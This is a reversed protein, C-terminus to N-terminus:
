VDDGEKLYRLNMERSGSLQKAYSKNGVIPVSLFGKSGTITYVLCPFYAGTDGAFSVSHTILSYQGVVGSMVVGNDGLLYVPCGKILDDYGSLDYTTESGDFAGNVAFWDVVVAEFETGEEPIWLEARYEDDGQPLSSRFVLASGHSFAVRLIEEEATRAVMGLLERSSGEYIRLSSRM